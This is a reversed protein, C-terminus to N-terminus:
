VLDMFVDKSMIRHLTALNLNKRSSSDQAIFGSIGPDQTFSGRLEDCLQKTDIAIDGVWPSM